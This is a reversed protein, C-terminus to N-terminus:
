LSNLTQQAITSIHRWVGPLTLAMAALYTYPSSLFKWRDMGRQWGAQLSARDSRGPLTTFLYGNANRM